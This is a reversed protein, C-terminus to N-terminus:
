QPVPTNYYFRFVGPLLDRPFDAPLAPLPSSSQLAHVAAQDFSPVGSGSVLKLERITGDREIKFSVSVVGKMGLEAAVPIMWNTRVIEVARDAWPGLDYGQTDFFVGSGPDGTPLAGGDGGGSGGGAGPKGPKGNEIYRDLNELSQSLQKPSASIKPGENGIDAPRGSPKSAPPPSPPAPSPQPQQQAIGPQPARPGPRVSPQQVVERKPGNPQLPGAKRNASSFNTTRPPEPVTTANPPVEVFRLTVPSQASTNAPVAAFLGGKKLAIGALFHLLLAIVFAIVFPFDKKM